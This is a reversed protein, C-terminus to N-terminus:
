GEGLRRMMGAPRRAPAEVEALKARDAVAEATMAILARATPDGAMDAKSALVRLADAIERLARPDPM